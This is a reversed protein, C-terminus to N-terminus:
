DNQFNTNTKSDSGLGRTGTYNEDKYFLKQLSIDWQMITYPDLGSMAVKVSKLM